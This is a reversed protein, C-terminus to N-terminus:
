AVDAIGVEMRKFMWHGGALLIGAGLAGLGLETWVPAQNYLITRRYSDIVPGLPNVFSHSAM